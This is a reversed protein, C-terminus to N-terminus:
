RTPKFLKPDIPVNLEISDYTVNDVIYPFLVGEKTKKFNYYDTINSNQQGNSVVVSKIRIIFYNSPDIFYFLTKHPAGNIKLQLADVGDVDENELLEITYGKKKYDILVGSLDIEDQALKVDEATMNEPSTQGAFPSFNFGSDKTLISYGTLGSFTFETRAGIKNLAYYNIPVKQGSFEINGMKKISNIALLKERGGYVDIVKNVVADVNNQASVNFQYCTCAILLLFLKM